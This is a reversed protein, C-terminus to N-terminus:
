VVTYVLCLDGDEYGTNIVPRPCGKGEDVSVVFTVLVIFANRVVDILHLIPGFQVRQGSALIIGLWRYPLRAFIEESDQFGPHSLDLLLPVICNKTDQLSDLRMYTVLTLLVAMQLPTKITKCWNVSSIQM